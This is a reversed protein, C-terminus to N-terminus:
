NELDINKTVWEALINGARHNDKISFRKMLHIKAEGIDKFSSKDLDDLYKFMDARSEKLTTKM